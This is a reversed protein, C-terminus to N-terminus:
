GQRENKMVKILEEIMDWDRTEISNILIDLIIKSDLEVKGSFRKDNRVLESFDYNYKMSM